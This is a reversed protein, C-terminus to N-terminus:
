LPMILSWKVLDPNITNLILYAALALILGSIAGWIWKKAEDKSTITGSLMYMFGGYVLAGLAAIGVAALSLLYIYRLYSILGGSPSTDGGISVTPYSVELQYAAQAFHTLLIVLSFAIIVFITIKKM